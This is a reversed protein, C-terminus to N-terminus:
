SFCIYVGHAALGDRRIYKPLRIEIQLALLDEEGGASLDRPFNRTVSIVTHAATVIAPPRGPRTSILGGM